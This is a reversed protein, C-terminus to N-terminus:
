VQILGYGKWTGPAGGSVCIWGAYDGGNPAINRVIDGREWSGYAPPATALLDGSANFLRSTEPITTYIVESNELELDARVGYQLTIGQPGTFSAANIKYRESESLGRSTFLYGSADNWIRRMGIKSGANLGALIAQSTNQEFHIDELDLGAILGQMNIGVNCYEFISEKITSTVLGNSDFSLILGTTCHAIWLHTMYTTTSFGSGQSGSIYIATNCNYAHINEIVNGVNLRMLLGIGNGLTVNFLSVDRIKSNYNQIFYMGKNVFTINSVDCESFNEATTYNTVSYDGVVHEGDIIVSQQSEGLLHVNTKLVLPAKIIYKGSPLFVKGGGFMWGGSLNYMNIVTYAYDIAAQIAATDDTVGDGKAGFKQVNVWLNSKANEIAEELATIDGGLALVEAKIRADLDEHTGRAEALENQIPALIQLNILDGLKGSDFWTNLIATLNQPLVQDMLNEIQAQTLNLYTIMENVQSVWSILNEMVSLGHPYKTHYERMWEPSIFLSNYM